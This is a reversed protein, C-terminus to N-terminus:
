LATHFQWRAVAFHFARSVYTAISFVCSVAATNQLIPIRILRTSACGETRAATVATPRTTSEEEGFPMASAFDGVGRNTSSKVESPHELQGGASENRRSSSLLCGRGPACNM